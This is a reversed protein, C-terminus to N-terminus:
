VTADVITADRGGATITELSAYVSAELAKTTQQPNSIDRESRRARTRADFM